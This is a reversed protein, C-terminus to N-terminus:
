LLWGPKQSSSVSRAAHVHHARKCVYAGVLTKGKECGLCVAFVYVQMCLCLHSMWRKRARECMSGPPLPYIILPKQSPTYTALYKVQVQYNVGVCQRYTEIIQPIVVCVSMTAECSCQKCLVGTIFICCQKWLLTKLVCFYGCFFHFLPHGVTTHPSALASEAYLM